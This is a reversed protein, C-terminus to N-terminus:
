WSAMRENPFPAEAGTNANLWRGGEAKVYLARLTIRDGHKGTGLYLVERTGVPALRGWINTEVEEFRRGEGDILQNLPADIGWIPIERVDHAARFRAVLEKDAESAM